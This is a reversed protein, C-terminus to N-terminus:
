AEYGLAPLYPSFVSTLTAQTESTLDRWKGIKLDGIHPGHIHTVADFQSAGTSRLRESPLNGLRQPFTRVADTRYSQFIAEVIADPPTIGCLNAIRRVASPDEFPRDEYRIIPAGEGALRALRACDALLWQTTRELRANFRQAMSVAADRPDRVSLLVLAGADRLWHDFEESGQHSKIVLCPFVHAREEETLHALIDAYMSNARDGFSANALERVVNFAWTSASGHLGVAAIVRHPHDNM